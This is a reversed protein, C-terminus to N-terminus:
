CADNCRLVLTAGATWRVEPGARDVGRQAGELRPGMGARKSSHMTTLILAGPTEARLVNAIRDANNRIVRDAAGLIEARCRYNSCLVVPKAAFSQIFSEM